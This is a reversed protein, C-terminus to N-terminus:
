LIAICKHRWIRERIIKGRHESDTIGLYFTRNTGVIIMFLHKWVNSGDSIIKSLLQMDTSSPYPNEWPHTHWEGLYNIVGESDRWRKEIIAQATQHNRIFFLPGSRDKCTPETIESILYYEKEPIYKGLLIGGSEHLEPKQEFKLLLKIVSDPIEVTIDPFYIIM